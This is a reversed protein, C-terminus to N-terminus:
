RARRLHSPVGMGWGMQMGSRKTARFYAKGEVEGGGVTSMVVMTLEVLREAGDRAAEHLLTRNHRRTLKGGFIAQVNDLMIDLEVADSKVNAIEFNTTHLLCFVDSLHARAVTSICDFWRIWNRIMDTADWRIVWKRQSTTM